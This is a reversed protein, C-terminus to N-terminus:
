RAGVTRADFGFHDAEGAVVAAHHGGAVHMAELRARADNRALAGAAHADPGSQQAADDVAGARREVSEAREYPSSRTCSSPVAADIRQRALGDVCREIDAHARDVGQQRDAAALADAQEGARPTPLLTSSPM